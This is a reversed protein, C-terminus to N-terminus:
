WEVAASPIEGIANTVDHFHLPASPLSFYSRDPLLPYNAGFMTSLLVRFSNVPTITDYLKARVIPPVLYANLISFPERMDTRAFSEWDVNLRSGHDGQIIIIPQRASRKMIEDVAELIRQDVYAVQASYGLRYEAKTIKHTNLLQSGDADSYPYAPVEAEGYLGFVFPPHPALIHAFVFKPFSLRPVTKLNQFASQLYARHDAYDTARGLEIEKARPAADLATLSLVEGAFSSPPPADDGLMIDATEARSIESGSWISVYRYGKSSLYCAVENDDVLSRLSGFLDPSSPQKDLLNGLYDMNLASPLCYGTQPYNARSHKPVYFGRAELASVFSSTDCGIFARLSDTRGHADLVIYYIDPMEAARQPSVPQLKRHASHHDQTREDSAYILGSASIKATRSPITPHMLRGGIAFSSPAILGLSAINLAVTAPRRGGHTLCLAAILLVLGTACIPAVAIHWSSPVLNGIHGYSFFVLVIASAAIASTRMRRTLAAFLAWLSLSFLIALGLPWWLEKSSVESINNAYLSLIPFAAILLPHIPFSHDRAPGGSARANKGPVQPADINRSEASTASRNNNHMPVIAKM